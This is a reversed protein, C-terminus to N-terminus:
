ERVAMTTHDGGHSRQNADATSSTTISVPHPSKSARGCRESLRKSAEAWIQERQYEDKIWELDSKIITSLYSAIERRHRVTADEEGLIEARSVKFSWVQPDLRLKKLGDLLVRFAPKQRIQPFDEPSCSM